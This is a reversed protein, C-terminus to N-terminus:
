SMLLQRMSKLPIMWNQIFVACLTQCVLKVSSSFNGCNDRSFHSLDTHSTATTQLLSQISSPLYSLKHVFWLSFGYTVHLRTFIKHLADIKDPRPQKTENRKVVDGWGRGGGGGADWRFTDMVASRPTTRGDM